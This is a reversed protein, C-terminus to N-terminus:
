LVGHYLPIKLLTHYCMTPTIEMCIRLPILLGRLTSFLATDSVVPSSSHTGFTM